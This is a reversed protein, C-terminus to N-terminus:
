FLVGGADLFFDSIEPTRLAKVARGSVSEAWRDLLVDGHKLM